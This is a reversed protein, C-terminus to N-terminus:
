LVASRFGMKTGTQTSSMSLLYQGQGNNIVSAQVGTTSTQGNIAAVISDLSEGATVNITVPQGGNASTPTIVITGANFNSTGSETTQYQSSLNQIDFQNTALSTVQLSYTSPQAGPSTTVTFASSDSSTATVSNWSQSSTLTYTAQQFTQLATQLATLASQSASLQTLENQPTTTLQATLASQMESVYTSVPIGTGGPNSITNLQQILNVTM